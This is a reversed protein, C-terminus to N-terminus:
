NERTLCPNEYNWEITGNDDTYYHPRTDPFSKKFQGAWSTIEPNEIDHAPDILYLVTPTDGVRFYHAWDHNQTVEKIHLGMKGFVSLKEFMVKPGNGEFMGNYTWNSEIWWM